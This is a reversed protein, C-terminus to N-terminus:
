CQDKDVYHLRWTQASTQVSRVADELGQWEARIETLKMARLVGIEVQRLASGPNKYRYYFVRQEGACRVRLGPHEPDALVDGPNM